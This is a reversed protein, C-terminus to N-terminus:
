THPCLLVQLMDQSGLGPHTPSCPQGLWTHGPTPHPHPCTRHLAKMTLKQRYVSGEGWVDPGQRRGKRKLLVLKRNPSALATSHTMGGRAQLQTSGKGGM